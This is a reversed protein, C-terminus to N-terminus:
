TGMKTKPERKGWHFGYLMGISLKLKPVWCSHTDALILQEGTGGAQHNESSFGPFNWAFPVFSDFANWNQLKNNTHSSFKGLIESGEPYEWTQVVLASSKNHLRDWRWRKVSSKRKFESNECVNEHIQYTCQAALDLVALVGLERRARMLVEPTLILHRINFFYLKRISWSSAKAM